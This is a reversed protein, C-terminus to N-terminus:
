AGRYSAFRERLKRLATHMLTKVTGVPQGRTAAIEEFTLDLEQRLLFVEREAPRLKRIAARLLDLREQQLAEDEPTLTSSAAVTDALTDLPVARRYGVKRRCDLAANMGIRFLWARLDQVGTLRDHSACCKLFATQAADRADEWNGVILFLRRILGPAIETFVVALTNEPPAGAIPTRTDHDTHCQQM